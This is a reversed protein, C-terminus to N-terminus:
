QPHPMAIKARLLTFDLPLEHRATVTFGAEALLERYHVATRERGGANCLMHVDWAFALSPSSDEPLLREVILLDAGPPMSEALRKLIERCRQDDWDHLVRSLLYVDGGAPVGSTFDGAVLECRDRVRVSSIVDPREFLVGRLHPRVDLIHNLLEGNGGAVDVVVQARSFDFVEAVQGFISASSAMARHFGLEPREAFYDFHHKGYVHAFSEQGTRVSHILEGFSEYFSGGYLLALSHLSHRADTRLLEGLETLEFGPGSVVGLSALYRLLRVLSDHCTGTAAAIDETSVGYALYDALRLEAAVAIAQTQWAGTMLNLLRHAPQRRLHTTLTDAHHGRAILELRQAARRFYLVTSDVHANYGGGDPILGARDLATTLGSLVVPDPATVQLAVHTEHQEIRETVAIDAPASPLAFIEIACHSGDAAVVPARIINVDIDAYGYRSRLRDRVVVSPVVDGATLGYSRLEDYLGAVTSPFILVAAHDFRCHAAVSKDIEFQRLVSATDNARVFSIMDQVLDLDRRM